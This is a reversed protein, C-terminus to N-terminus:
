NPAELLEEKSTTLYSSCKQICNKSDALIAMREEQSKPWQCFKSSAGHLLQNSTIM